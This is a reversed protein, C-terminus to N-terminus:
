NDVAYSILERPEGDSRHSTIAQLVEPTRVVSAVGFVAMMTFWGLMVPGFIRGVKATGFRQISFLGILIVVSVPVVARGYSVECLEALALYFACAAAALGFDLRGM